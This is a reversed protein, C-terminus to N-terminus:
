LWADLDTKRPPTRRGFKVAVLAGTEIVQYPTSKGVGAIRAAEAVSFALRAEPPTVPSATVLVNEGYEIAVM